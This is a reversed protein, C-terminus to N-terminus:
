REDGFLRLLAYAAYGAILVFAAVLVGLYVTNV